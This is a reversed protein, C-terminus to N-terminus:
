GLGHWFRQRVTLVPRPRAFIKSNEKEHGGGVFRYELRRKICGMWITLPDELTKLIAVILFYACAKDQTSECGFPEPKKGGKKEGKIVIGRSDM